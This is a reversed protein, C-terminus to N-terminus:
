PLRGEQARVDLVTNGDKALDCEYTMPLYAGFGNQFEVKDGIYTIEGLEKNKWRFRSFKPELTGDTWRVSYKALREIQDKCRIGAAIVGVDGLCALDDNACSSGAKADTKSDSPGSSCQYLIFSIFFLAVFGIFVESKKNPVQKETEKKAPAGCHPCSIADSSIDKSCEYCKLLAM